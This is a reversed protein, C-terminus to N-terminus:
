HLSGTDANRNAFISIIRSTNRQVFEKSGEEDQCNKKIGSGITEIRTILATKKQENDVNTMFQHM